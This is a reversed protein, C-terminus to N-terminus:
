MESLKEYDILWFVNAFKFVRVVYQQSERHYNTDENPRLPNMVLEEWVM